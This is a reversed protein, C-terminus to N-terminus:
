FCVSYHSQQCRHASVDPWAPQLQLSLHAARTHQKSRPNPVPPLAVSVLQGITNYTFDKRNGLPDIEATVRGQNDYESSASTGDPFVVAVQRGEADYRFRTRRADTADVTVLSGNSNEVQIVNTIQTAVRGYRDFETESRLRVMKGPYRAGLGVQEAPLPHAITAIQRDRADYVFDTIQGTPSITRAVRGRTDYITKSEHLLTGRATIASTLNGATGSITVVAGSIRQSGISRGQNDYLTATAYFAPSPGAGLDTSAPTLYRDTSLLM